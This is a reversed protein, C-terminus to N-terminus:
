GDSRARTGVRIEAERILDLAIDLAELLHDVLEDTESASFSQNLDDLTVGCASAGNSGYTAKMTKLQERIQEVERGDPTGRYMLLYSAVHIPNLDYADVGCCEAVCVTMCRGLLNSLPPELRMRQDAWRPQLQAALALTLWLTRM